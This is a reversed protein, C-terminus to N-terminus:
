HRLLEAMPVAGVLKQAGTEPMNRYIYKKCNNSRGRISRTKPAPPARHASKILLLRSSNCEIWM